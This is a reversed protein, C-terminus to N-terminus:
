LLGEIARVLGTEFLNEYDRPHELWHLEITYHLVHSFSLLCSSLVILLKNEKRIM